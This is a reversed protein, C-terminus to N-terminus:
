NTKMLKKVIRKDKTYVILLYMAQDLYEINFQTNLKNINNQQIVKRGRLDFLEIKLINKDSRLFVEGNTPNPYVYVTNEYPDFEDIALTSNSVTILYDEVEGFASICPDITNDYINSVRMRLNQGIVADDPVTFSGTSINNVYTSMNISESSDFILNDNFDIWAAAQDPEFAFNLSVSLEYTEGIILEIPTLNQYLTYYDQSSNNVFSGLSVQNIYDAGTGSLAESTCYGKVEYMFTYTESTDANSGTASVKFFVKDEKTSTPLAQNSVWTNNSTNTMSIVNDLLQNNVSYLVDVNTLTGDYDIVSTVFQESGEKPYSVSPPNTISTREISPFDGRGVLDYEWLGRGWTAAKITNAGYNIELEEITVNPMGTNYLVWTDGDLPMYYVGVETGIYIYPNDTHDIVVSHVPVDGINHTINTWSTGGNTSRYVKENNDQYSANVVIIDDDNNPNFAIDQIQHNPLNNKIDLFRAGGDISKEIESNRSVIMIDSNNQAIEANRIQWWYDDPHSSLFSPTGVYDYNLGFDTSVYVGNRFDYIKFHDNPDYALPAEWWGDTNNSTVITNSIGADLTRIRGGLQYSGIMYEPNLPLIIGEMGDAGYAEVWVTPNKITTGNDQSGCIAVNNNSQSLGLKYNERIAPSGTQMLNQWSVGEDSSKALFGDTGVYFVGNVSKATRLDAHVYATSNFYNEELTGDGNIAAALYWNTRKTFSLGGDRSNAGDVGGILLNQNNTSNVAFADTGIGSITNFSNAVFDFNSGANTSKFIGSESGFYLDNPASATVAITASKNGNEDITTTSFSDGKIMVDDISWGWSFDGVWQFRIYAREEGALISSLDLTQTDYNNFTTNSSDFRVIESWSVGDTSAEVSAVGNLGETFFHNFTLKVASFSSADFFPPSLSINESGNNGNAYSNVEVYNGSMGSVSYLYDFGSYGIAEGTNNIVWLENPDAGANINTWTNPIGGEFDEDLIISSNAVYVLNKQQKNYAYIIDENTPHFEVQVIDGSSIVQTWTSFNDITKYLGNSTGVYLLNAITPHHVVTFIKFNSGLGGLGLNTPNFETVDFLAGGNSSEYIGYSYYNKANQLAIYIHDFNSPDVTVSNVGSAALTETNTATWSTGENSTKWLGGSRSAIYINQSNNPDVYFDEVRGMGAAYHGTISDVSLPGIERWVENMSLRESQNERNSVNRLHAKTAFAPDVLLRDGSPYYKYENNNVWRMFQKYGSGKASIDITKFYSEAEEIVDYFNIANDNMM